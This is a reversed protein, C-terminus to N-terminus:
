CMSAHLCSGLNLKSTAASQMGSWRLATPHFSGTQGCALSWSAAVCTRRQCGGACGTRCTHAHCATNHLATFCCCSCKFLRHKLMRLAVTVCFVLQSMNCLKPLMCGSAPMGAKYFILV